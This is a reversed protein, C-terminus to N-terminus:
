LRPMRTRLSVVKQRREWMGTHILNRAHIWIFISTGDVMKMGSRRWFSSIRKANLFHNQEQMVVEPWYGGMLFKHWNIAPCSAWVGDYDEPYNQVEMLCQRGGGSGGNMYSYRIPRDHLIETVAKGFMTMNHTSRLRWNEYLDQQLEGTKSDITHDNWGESIEQM